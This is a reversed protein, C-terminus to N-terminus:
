VQKTPNNYFIRPSTKTLHGIIEQVLERFNCLKSPTVLIDAKHSPKEEKLTIDLTVIRGSEQRLSGWWIIFCDVGHYKDMPTDLCSYLTINSKNTMLIQSIQTTLEKTFCTGTQQRYKTIESVCDWWGWFEDSVKWRCNGLYVREHIKGSHEPREVVVTNAGVVSTGNAL